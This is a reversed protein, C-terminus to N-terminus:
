DGTQDVLLGGMGEDVGQKSSVVALDIASEDAHQVIRFERGVQRLIGEDLGKSRVTGELIPGLGPRPEELDGSPYCEVLQAM